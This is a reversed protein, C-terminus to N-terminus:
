GWALFRVVGKQKWDMTQHIYVNFVVFTELFPL